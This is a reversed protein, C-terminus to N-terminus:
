VDAGDGHTAGLVPRWRGGEGWAIVYVQTGKWRLRLGPFAASIRFQGLRGKTDPLMLRRRRFTADSGTAILTTTDDIAAAGDVLYQLRLATASAYEVEVQKSFGYPSGLEFEQSWWMSALPAEPKTVFIAKLIRINSTPGPALRAMFDIFPPDFSYSAWGRGNHQVTPITYGVAAFSKQVPLAIALNNTDAQLHVGQFWQPSGFESYETLMPTRDTLADFHVQAIRFLKWANADTKRVRLEYGIFTPNFAVPVITKVASSLTKSVQAVTGDEQTYEFVVTGTAGETDIELDIGRFEKPGWHGCDLFDTPRRVTDEPRTLLSATWHHFVPSQTGTSSWTLGLAVNRAYRDLLAPVASQDIILPGSRSSGTTTACAVSATQNDFLITPTLTAGGPNLDVTLQAYRKEAEPDGHDESFTTIAGAIAAGDDNGLTDDYLLLKSTATASGVLTRHVGRQEDAYHFVAGFAYTDQVWGFDGPEGAGRDQVLTARVGGTVAVYDYYLLKNDAYTLRHSFENGSTFSPALLGNTDRGTTEGTPFLPLLDRSVNTTRAGDSAYIGDPGLWYMLDGDTALAYRALMGPAGIVDSYDILLDGDPTPVFGIMRRNTWVFGRNHYACGNQLPETPSGIDVVYTSQTADLTKHNFVYLRGPNKTDGLAYYWGDGVPGFAIPLPKSVQLPEAIELKLNTGGGVNDFLELVGTSHVRYVSTAVGNAIVATGPDWSTDFTAAALRVMTGAIEDVTATFPSDRVTFPQANTNGERARPTAAVNLAYQDSYTDTFLVNGPPGANTVTGIIVWENVTGGRRRIDIKDVGAAATAWLTVAVQYRHPWVLSRSPVSWNSRAGTESDRYRYEYDYGRYVSVDPEYGGGIWWSDLAMDVTGADNTIVVVRLAKATALTKSEDSGNKRFDAMKFRAEFWQSQGTNAQTRSSGPDTLEPGSTPLHTTPQVPATEVGERNRPGGRGEARSTDPAEGQDLDTRRKDEARTDVATAQSRSLLELDSPTISHTGWNRTFTGDDYDIEIKVETVHAWDSLFLSFHEEDNRLDVARGGTSYSSLNTAGGFTRSVVHTTSAALGTWKTGGSTFTGSPPGELYGYASPQVTITDGEVTGAATLYCRLAVTGDPGPITHTLAAYQTTSGAFKVLAHQQFQSFSVSPVITAWGSTSGGDFIIRQVTCAVGAPSAPHIEEVFLKFTTAGDVIITGPGIDVVDAFEVAFWGITFGLTPDEGAYAARVFAKSFRTVAVPGSVQVGTSATWNAPTNGDDVDVRLPPTTFDLEAKPPVTPRAIGLGRVAGTLGIKANKTSDFVAMWSKTATQPVFPLLSLPNGSYGSDVSTPTGTKGRFLETGIGSIYTFDAAAVDGLYRTSHWPTKAAPATQFVGTGPRQRLSNRGTRRVNKAYFLKSPSSPADVPCSADVGNHAFHRILRDYLLDAM